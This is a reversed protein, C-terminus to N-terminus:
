ATVVHRAPRLWCVRSRAAAVPKESTGDMPSSTRPLSRMMDIRGGPRARASATSTAAAIRAVPADRGNASQLATEGARCRLDRREDAVRAALADVGPDDPPRDGRQEVLPARGVALAAPEPYGRM